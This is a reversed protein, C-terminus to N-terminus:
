AAGERLRKLMEVNMPRVIALYAQAMDLDGDARAVRAKRMMDRHHELLDASTMKEIPM